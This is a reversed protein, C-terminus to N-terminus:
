KAVENGEARAIAARAALIADAMFPSAGGSAIRTTTMAVLAKELAALLDPCNPCPGPTHATM